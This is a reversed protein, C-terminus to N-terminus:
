ADGHFQAYPPKGLLAGDNVRITFSALPHSWEFIRITDNLTISTWNHEELIPVIKDVHLSGERGGKGYRGDYNPKFFRLIPPNKYKAM